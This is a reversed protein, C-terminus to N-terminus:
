NSQKHTLFRKLKLVLANIDFEEEKDQDNYQQDHEDDSDYDVLQTDDDDSMEDDSVSCLLFLHALRVCRHIGLVVRACWLHAM